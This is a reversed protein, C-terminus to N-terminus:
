TGVQVPCDSLLQQVGVVDGAGLRVQDTVIPFMVNEDRQAHGLGFVHGLEHLCLSSLSQPDSVAADRVRDTRILVFGGSIQRTSRDALTPAAYGYVTQVFAPVTDSGRFAVYIHRPRAPGSGTPGVQLGPGDVAMAEVGLYSFQLGTAASWTRLARRLRATEARLQTGTLSGPDVSWTVPGACPVWGADVLEPIKGAYISVHDARVVDAASGAAQAPTVAGFGFALVLGAVSAVMLRQVIRM